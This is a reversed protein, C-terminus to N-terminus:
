TNQMIQKRYKLPTIGVTKKFITIFHCYDNFGSMYCAETVNYGQSLLMKAKSIKKSLIYEQLSAGTSKKFMSTLYSRNIHFVEALHEVSINNSINKDIYQLIPSLKKPLNSQRYLALNGEFAQNILVLLEIFSNLALVNTYPNKSTISSEIKDFLNIVEKLQSENFRILNQRDHDAPHFCSLLNTTQSSFLQPIQAGFNIVIREYVCNDEIFPRHIENPSMILIDGYKLKYINSEVVYSVNGSLFFYIEYVDHYHFDFKMNEELPNNKLHSYNISGPINTSNINVM